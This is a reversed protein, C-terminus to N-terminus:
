QHCSTGTGAESFSPKGNGYSRNKYSRFKAVRLGTGRAKGVRAQRQWERKGVRAQRQWEGRGKGLELCLPCFFRSKIECLSIDVTKRDVYHSKLSRTDPTPSLPPPPSSLSPPPFSLSPPPPPPPPPPPASLPPCTFSPPPPSLPTLPMSAFYISIFSLFLLFQQSGPSINLFHKIAVRLRPKVHHNGDLVNRKTSDSIKTAM